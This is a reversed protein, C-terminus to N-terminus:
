MGPIPTFPRELLLDIFGMLLRYPRGEHGIGYRPVADSRVWERLDTGFEQSRAYWDCAMEALAVEPMNDIGGWYEPHHANTRRHHEIALRKQETPADAHLYDWEIGYFKSADHVFGRAAVHRGLETRGQAMLRKGLRLCADRVLGIHRALDDLQQEPKM